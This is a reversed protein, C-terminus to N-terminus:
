REVELDELNETESLDALLFLTKLSAPKRESVLSRVKSMKEELSVEELDYLDCNTMDM